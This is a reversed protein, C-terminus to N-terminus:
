YKSLHCFGRILGIRTKYLLRCTTCGGEAVEATRGSCAPRFTGLSTPSHAHESSTEVANPLIEQCGAEHLFSVCWWGEMGQYVEM